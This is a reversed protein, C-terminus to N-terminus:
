VGSSQLSQLDEGRVMAVIMRALDGSDLDGLVLDAEQQVDPGANGMAVALGAARFMPLDNSADGVAVVRSPDIGFQEKLVRLAEAKGRCPPHVDVAVFQSARHRALISLPFHTMYVPQALHNEIAGAYAGSDEGRDALFTVRVVYEEAMLAAEDVYQVGTLGELSREEAKSRPQLCLKRRAGMLIMLGGHERRFAHLKGMIRNSLVREEILREGKADCVAAGNFLLAPTGLDLEKLIPEASLWSRGTVVMVKIGAERAEAIALRTASPVTEQSDLLTGDLDLLLADHTRTM